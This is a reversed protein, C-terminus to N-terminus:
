SGFHACAVGCLEKRFLDLLKQRFILNLAVDANERILSAILTGSASRLYTYVTVEGSTESAESVPSNRYILLARHGVLTKVYRRANELQQIMRM